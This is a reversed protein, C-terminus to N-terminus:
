NVRYRWLAVLVSVAQIFENLAGTYAMYTLSYAGLSLVTFLLCWRTVNLRNQWMGYINAMAGLLLLDAPRDFSLTICGVTIAAFLLMTWGPATKDKVSYPILVIQRIITVIALLAGGIAGLMWFQFVVLINATLHCILIGTKTKLQPAILCIAIVVLGLLQPILKIDDM